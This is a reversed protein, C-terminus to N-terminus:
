GNRMERSVQGQVIIPDLQIFMGYYKEIYCWNPSLVNIEIDSNNLVHSLTRQDWIMPNELQHQKWRKVIDLVEENYPLYMCNSILEKTVGMGEASWQMIHVALKDGVIEELPLERVVTADADLYLIDEKYKTMADYLVEPKQGCNEEWSGRDTVEVTEYEYKFRDLSDTLKKVVHTYSPTYFAIIKMTSSEVRKNHRNRYRGM